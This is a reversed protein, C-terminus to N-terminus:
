ESLIINYTLNNINLYVCQIDFVQIINYRTDTYKFIIISLYFSNLTYNNLEKGNYIYM